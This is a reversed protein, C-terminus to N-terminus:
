RRLVVHGRSNGCEPNNCQPSVVTGRLLTTKRDVPSAFPDETDGFPVVSQDDTLQRCAGVGHIESFAVHVAAYGGGYRREGISESRDTLGPQGRPFDHPVKRDAGPSDEGESGPTREM